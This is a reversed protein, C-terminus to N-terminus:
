RAPVIRIQELWVNLSGAAAAFSLVQAPCEAPVTVVALWRGSSQDLEATLWSPQQGRCTLSALVQNSPQLQANGASWSLGYRGPALTLLQTLFVRSHTATGDLTVRQGSGGPSPIFGLSLESNGIM